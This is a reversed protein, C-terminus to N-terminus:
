KSTAKWKLFTKLILSIENTTEQPGINNEKCLRMIHYTLHWYKDDAVAYDWDNWPYDPFHKRPAKSNVSCIFESLKDCHYRTPTKICIKKILSSDDLLQFNSENKMDENKESKNDDKKRYVKWNKEYFSNSKGSPNKECDSCNSSNSYNSTDGFGPFLVCNITSSLLLLTILIKNNM